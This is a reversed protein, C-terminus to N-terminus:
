ISETNNKLTYLTLKRWLSLLYGHAPYFHATHESYMNWLVTEKNSHSVYWTTWFARTLIWCIKDKLNKELNALTQSKYM